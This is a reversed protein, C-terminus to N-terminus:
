RHIVEPILNACRHRSDRTPIQDRIVSKLQGAQVAFFTVRNEPEIPQDLEGSDLM